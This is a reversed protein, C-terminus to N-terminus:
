RGEQPVTPPEKATNELAEPIDAYQQEMEEPAKLYFYDGQMKLRKTFDVGYSYSAKQQLTELDGAYVGAAFLFLPILALSPTKM